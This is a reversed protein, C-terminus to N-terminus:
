KSAGFALLVDGSASGMPSWGNWDSALPGAIKVSKDACTSQAHVAPILGAV